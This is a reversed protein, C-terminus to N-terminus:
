WSTEDQTITKRQLKWRNCFKMSRFDGITRENKKTNLGCRTRFTPRYTYQINESTTQRKDDFNLPWESCRIHCGFVQVVVCLCITSFRENIVCLFNWVIALSPNDLDTKSNSHSSTNDPPKRFFFRSCIYFLRTCVQQQRHWWWHVTHCGLGFRVLRYFM